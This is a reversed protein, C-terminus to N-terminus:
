KREGHTFTKYLECDFESGNYCKWYSGYVACKENDCTILSLDRVAIKELNNKKEM